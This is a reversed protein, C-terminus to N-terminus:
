ELSLAELLKMTQPVDGDLDLAQLSGQLRSWDNWLLRRSLHPCAGGLRATMWDVARAELAGDADHRLVINGAHLDGHCVRAGRLRRVLAVLAEDLGQRSMGSRAYSELSGLAYREVELAAHTGDSEKQKWADYIAPALGERAAECTKYAEESQLVDEQRKLAPPVPSQSFKLLHSPDGAKRTVTGFGGRHQAVARAELADDDRQANWHFEACSM